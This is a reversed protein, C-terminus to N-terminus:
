SRSTSPYRIGGVETCLLGLSFLLACFMANQSSYALSWGVPEPSEETVGWWIGLVRVGRGSGGRGCRGGGGRWTM